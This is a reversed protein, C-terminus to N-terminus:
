WSGGRVRTGDPNTRVNTGATESDKRVLLGLETLSWYILVGGFVMMLIGPTLPSRM